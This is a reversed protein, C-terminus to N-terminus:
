QGKRIRNQLTPLLDLISLTGPQLNQDLLVQAFLLAGAAYNRHGYEIVRDTFEPQGDYVAHVTHVAYGNRYIEPIGWEASSKDWNRVTKIIAPDQNVLRCLWFATGSIDQKQPQHHEVIEVADPESMLIQDSVRRAFELVPVSTNPAIVLPYEPHEPICDLGSSMFLMPVGTDNCYRHANGFNASDRSCFVVCQGETPRTNIKADVGQDNAAQNIATAMRGPEDHGLRSGIIEIM